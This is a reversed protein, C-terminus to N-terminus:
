DPEEFVDKPLKIPNARFNENLKSFVSVKAINIRRLRFITINICKHIKLSKWYHKVIKEM